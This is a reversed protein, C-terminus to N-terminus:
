FRLQYSLISQEEMNMKQSFYSHVDYYIVIYNWVSLFVYGLYYSSYYELSSLKNYYCKRLTTQFEGSNFINHVFLNLRKVWLYYSNWDTIAIQWLLYSICHFLKLIYIMTITYLLYISNNSYSLQKEVKLFTILHYFQIFQM